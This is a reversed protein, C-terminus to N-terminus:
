QLRVFEGLYGDITYERDDSMVTVTYTGAAIYPKTFLNFIWHPDDYRFVNGANSLDPASIRNSM